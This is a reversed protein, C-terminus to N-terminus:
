HNAVFTGDDKKWIVHVMIQGTRELSEFLVVDDIDWNVPYVGCFEVACEIPGVELWDRNLDWSGSVTDCFSWFPEDEKNKRYGNRELIDIIQKLEPRDTIHESYVSKPTTVYFYCTTTEKDEKRKDIWSQIYKARIEKQDQALEFMNRASHVCKNCPYMNSLGLHSCRICAQNTESLKDLYGQVAKRSLSHEDAFDIIDSDTYIRGDIYLKRLEAEWSTEAEAM